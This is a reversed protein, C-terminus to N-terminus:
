ALFTRIHEGLSAITPNAFAERISITYGSDKKLRLIMRNLLLSHGGLQFFNDNPSIEEKGLLESWLAHLEREIQDNFPSIANNRKSFPVSEKANIDKIQPDLFEKLMLKPSKIFSGLINQYLNLLNSIEEKKLLDQAYEVQLELSSRKQQVFFSLDLKTYGTTIESISTEIGELSLDLDWDERFTFLTQYLPNVDLIRTINLHEILIDFPIHQHDQVTLIIKNVKLLVEKLTDNPSLVIRIPLINMVLGIINVAYSNTRGSMPSGIVLDAQGTKSFLLIYYAAILMTFITVNNNKAFLPLDQSLSAPLTTTEVAGRYTFKELKEYTQSFRSFQPADGLYEKWFSIQKDLFQGSIHKRQANSFGRYTPHTTPILFEKSKTISNFITTFERLFLRLSYGDFIIHHFNLLLSYRKETRKILYAKFLGPEKLDFEFNKFANEVDQLVKEAQYEPLDSIDKFNLQPQFIDVPKQIILEELEEFGTRLAEHRSIINELTHRITEKEIHGKMEIKIPLNYIQKHPVYNNLFWLKQQQLSALTYPGTTHSIPPEVNMPDWNKNLFDAIEKISLNSFLLTFSIDIRLREELQSKLFSVKISDFGLQILTKEFFDAPLDQSLVSTAIEHICKLINNEEIFLILSANAEKPERKVLPLEKNLLLNKCKQRQIKGSTTKSISKERIFVVSDISIEYTEYINKRIFDELLDLDKSHRHVEQVVVLRERNSKESAPLSFAATGQLALSPHSAQALAEIDQPYINQGNIIILDKIRASVYLDGEEDLFGLDGTKLYARDSGQYKAHFTGKTLEDRGWYGQAVSPGSVWIEGEEFPRCPTLTESNIIKIDHAEGRYGCSVLNRKIESANSHSFVKINARATVFLTSEALGYAPYFVEPKLGVRSFKELFQVLTKSHVPEAGNFVTQLSSLDLSSLEENPVGYTCLDFAFNPAGTITAKTDSILKLWKYPSKIFSQPAMFHCKIGKFFPFLIGFVLGMDHYPPLWSVLTQGASSTPLQAANQILLLNNIINGHSICVGKPTGTSGSTYQLFAIDESKLINPFGKLGILNELSILDEIYLVKEGKTTLPTLDVSLARSCFIYKAACDNKISKLRDLKRSNTPPFSPVAIMGAVLCGLFSIIFNLSPPLIILVRSKPETIIKLLGSSVLSVKEKLQGFNIEFFVDEREHFTYAVERPYLTANTSLSDLITIAPNSTM